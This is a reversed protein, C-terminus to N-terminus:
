GAKGPVLPPTADGVRFLNITQTRGPTSSVRAAKKAGLLRNLASSKGVNSRGAFAVEPLDLIPLAAPFSGVFEFRGSVDRM